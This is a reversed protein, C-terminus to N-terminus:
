IEQRRTQLWDSVDQELYQQLSGGDPRCFEEEGQDNSGRGAEEALARAMAGEFLAQHWWDRIDDTLAALAKEYAKPNGAKLIEVAEKTGAQDAILQELEAESGGPSAAVAAKPDDVRSIGLRLHPLARRVLRQHDWELGRQLGARHSASEALVVRHKRWIIVAMEEVLHCEAAGCPMHDSVLSALLADFEARDEWPLVAHRSLIGHKTANLERRDGQRPKTPQV